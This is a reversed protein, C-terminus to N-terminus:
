VLNRITEEQALDRIADVKCEATQQQNSLSTIKLFIQDFITRPFMRSAQLAYM